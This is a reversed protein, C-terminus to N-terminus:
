KIEGDDWAKREPKKNETKRQTEFPIMGIDNNRPNGSDFRYIIENQRILNLEKRAV